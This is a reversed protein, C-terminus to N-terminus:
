LVCRYLDCDASVACRDNVRGATCYACDANSRCGAQPGNACTGCDAGTTCTAGDRAGGVCVGATCTGATCTPTTLCTGDATGRANTLCDLIAEAVITQGAETWHIPDRLCSAIPDSWLDRTFLDECQQWLYSYTDIHNVSAGRLYPLLWNRHAGAKREQSQWCHLGGKVRGPSATNITLVPTGTCTGGGTCDSGATCQTGNNTGGVCYTRQAVLAIIRRFQTRLYADSNGAICIGNPCGPASLVGAQCWEMPPFSTPACSQASVSGIAGSTHECYKSCSGSPCESAVTCNAGDNTGGDCKQLCAVATDTSRLVCDASTACACAKSNFCFTKFATGATRCYRQWVGTCSSAPCDADVSCRVGANTGAACEKASLDSYYQGHQIAFCSKGEDPGDNDDCYGAQGVGCIGSPCESDVTCRVGANAGGECHAVGLEPRRNSPDAMFGGAFWSNVGIEIVLYDCPKKQGKLVVCPNFTTGAGDLIDNNAGTKALESVVDGVTYGGKACEIVNVPERLESALLQHFFDDNYGSGGIICVTEEGDGTRDSLANPVAPDVMDILVEAVASTIQVSGGTGAVVREDLGNVELQTWGDAEGPSNTMLLGPLTHYSGNHDLFQDTDFQPGSTTLGEAIYALGVQGATGADKALAVGTVSLVSEGAGLTLDTLAATEQEGDVATHLEGSDGDPLGSGSDNWCEWEATTTCGGGAGGPTWQSPAGTATGVLGEIRYNPNAVANDVYFDDLLVDAAGTETGEFGFRARTVSVVATTTCTNAQCTSGPCDTDLTCVKHINSGAVCAKCDADSACAYNTRPGAACKGQPRTSGGSAFVTPTAGGAGVWLSCTVNGGSNVQGLTAGYWTHTTLQGSIAMVGPTCSAEGPIAEACEKVCVGGTCATDTRTTVLCDAVTTCSGGCETADMQSAGCEGGTTDIDGYFVKLRYQACPSATCSSDQEIALLCGPVSASRLSALIRRASPVTTVRFKLHQYATGTAAFAPSEVYERAGSAPDVRLSGRNNAPADVTTSVSPTGVIDAWFFKQTTDIQLIDNGTAFVPIAWAASIVIPPLLWFLVFFALVCAVVVVVIRRM